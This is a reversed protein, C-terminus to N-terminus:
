KKGELKEILKKLKFYVLHRGKEICEMMAHCYVCTWIGKLFDKNNWHHYVLRISKGKLTKNRKCIECKGDKPYSRKNINSFYKNGSSLQHERYYSISGKRECINCIYRYCRKMWPRLNKRTLIVKCIICRKRKRWYNLHKKHLQKKLM